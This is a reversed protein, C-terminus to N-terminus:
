KGFNMYDELSPEKSGSGSPSQFDHNFKSQAHVLVAAVLSGVLVLRLLGRAWPPLRRPYILEPIWALLPALVLLIAHATTLQGFFRGIVLLSFLGVIPV